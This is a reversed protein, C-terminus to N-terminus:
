RRQRGRALHEACQGSPREPQHATGNRPFGACMGAGLVTEGGDHVLTLEGSLVYIWEDQLSHRHLLASVAGPADAQQPM